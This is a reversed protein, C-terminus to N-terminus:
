GRKCYGRDLFDLGDVPFSGPMASDDVLGSMSNSFSSDLIIGNFRGAVPSVFKSTHIKM